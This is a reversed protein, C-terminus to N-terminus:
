IRCYNYKCPQVCVYVLSAINFITIYTGSLLCLNQEHLEEIHQKAKQLELETETKKTQDM